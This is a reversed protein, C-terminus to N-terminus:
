EIRASTSICIHSGIRKRVAQKVEKVKEQFVYNCQHPLLPGIVSYVLPHRLRYKAM